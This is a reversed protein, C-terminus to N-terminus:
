WVNKNKITLGIRTAHGLIALSLLIFCLGGMTSNIIINTYDTMLYANQLLDRYESSM